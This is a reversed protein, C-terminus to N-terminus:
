TCIGQHNGRCRKAWDTREEHSRRDSTFAPSVLLFLAMAASVNLLQAVILPVIDAVAPSGM